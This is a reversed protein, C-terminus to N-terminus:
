SCMSGVVELGNQTSNDVRHRPFCRGLCRCLHQFAQAAPIYTSGDKARLFPTTRIGGTCFLIYM